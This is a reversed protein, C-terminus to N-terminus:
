GFPPSVNVTPPDSFMVHTALPVIVVIFSVKSRYPLWDSIIASAVPTAAASWVHVHLGMGSLVLLVAFIRMSSSDSVDPTLSM